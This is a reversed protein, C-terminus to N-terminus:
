GVRCLYTFIIHALDKSLVPSSLCWVRVTHCWGTQFGTSVLQGGDECLDEVSRQLQIFTGEQKLREVTM